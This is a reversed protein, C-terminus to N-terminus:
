PKELILSLIKKGDESKTNVELPESVIKADMQKKDYEVKVTQGKEYEREEGPRVSVRVQVPHGEQFTEFLTSEDPSIRVTRM